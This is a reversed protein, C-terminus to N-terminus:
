RVSSGGSLAGSIGFILGIALTGIGIWGLIVGALAMGRGGEQRQRIQSLAIYGFILALVSGIWYIWLIGLVMSAVAMGNTAARVAYPYSYSPAYPYGYPGPAYSSPPPPVAGPPPPPPVAGPLAPAPATAGAAVGCVPCYADDHELAHGWHCRRAPTPPLSAM